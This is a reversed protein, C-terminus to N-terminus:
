LVEYFWELATEFVYDFLGIMLAFIISAILVLISSSQLDSYKPWSVKHRMEEVSDLVFQKLKQM